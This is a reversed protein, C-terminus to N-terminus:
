LPKQYVIVSGFKRLKFLSSMRSMSESHGLFIFGGPSMSDYLNQVAMRRSADDFYILLNRCFVVDIGKFKKTDNADSLNCQSFTVAERLDNILQYEDGVRKFYTQKMKESMRMLSRASYKAIRAKQLVTTDIDSSFIEVDHENIGPWGELLSIGVSYPEEGTSSPICWIRVPDASRKHRVIEDMVSETLVKFQYDERMFYTENVTMSNILAQLEVDDTAFRMKVFYSRFNPAGNAEIREILRKDVFYRKSEDFFIGTKRYFFECFKKYDEDSIAINNM